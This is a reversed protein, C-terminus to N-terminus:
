PLSSFTMGHFSSLPSNALKICILLRPLPLCGPNATSQELLKVIDGVPDTHGSALHEPVLWDPQRAELTPPRLRIPGLIQWFTSALGVCIRARRYTIDLM